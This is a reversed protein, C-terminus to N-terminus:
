LPTNERVPQWDTLLRLNLDFCIKALQEDRIGPEDINLMWYKYLDKIMEIQGFWEPLTMGGFNRVDKDHRIWSQVVEWKRRMPIICHAGAKLHENIEDWKDHYPHVVLYDSVKARKLMDKVFHSGTHPVTPVIIM